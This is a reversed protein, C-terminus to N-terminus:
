LLKASGFRVSSFKSVAINIYSSFTKCIHLNPHKKMLKLLNWSNLVINYLFDCFRELCCNKLIVFNESETSFNYFTRNWEASTKSTRSLWVLTFRVLTRDIVIKRYQFFRVLIIAIAKQSFAISHPFSCFNKPIYILKLPSWVKHFLATSFFYNWKDPKEIRNLPEKLSDIAM